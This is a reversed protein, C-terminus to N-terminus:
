CYRGPIDRRVQNKRREFPLVKFDLRRMVVSLVRNCATISVADVPARRLWPTVLTTASTTRAREGAIWLSAGWLTAAFASM